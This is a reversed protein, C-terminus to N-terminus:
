SNKEGDSSEVDTNDLAQDDIVEEQKAIASADREPDPLYEDGFAVKYATKFQESTRFDYFVPWTRFCELGIVDIIEGSSMM